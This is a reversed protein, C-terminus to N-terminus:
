VAAAVKQSAGESGQVTASQVRFRQLGPRPTPAHVVDEQLPRMRGFCPNQVADRSPITGKSKPLPSVPLQRLPVDVCTGPSRADKKSRWSQGTEIDHCCANCTTVFAPATPNHLHYLVM